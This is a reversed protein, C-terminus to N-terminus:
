KELLMILGAIYLNMGPVFNIKKIVMNQVGAIM